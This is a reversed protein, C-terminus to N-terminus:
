LAQCALILRPTLQGETASAVLVLTRKPAWRTLEDEGGIKDDHLVEVDFSEGLM